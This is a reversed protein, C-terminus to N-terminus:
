GSAPFLEAADVWRAGARRTHEYLRELFDWVPRDHVAHHTLVGAPERSEMSLHKVLARLAVEEGIFGRGGHWDIIDVHTNVLVVGPAAHTAARPGYASLGHLGAGPLRAILAHKLRNWPPVLVPRFRSGALSALRERARALRAIAEEEAESGPFETKKEGPGARNRHDTGHM